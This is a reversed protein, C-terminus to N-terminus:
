EDRWQPSNTGYRPKFTYEAKGTGRNYTQSWPMNHTHHRWMWTWHDAYQKYLAADYARFIIEDGWAGSTQYNSSGTVVMKRNRKGAYNGRVLLLKEHTYLDLQQDVPDYLPTDFGTSRVPIVGRKTPVALVRAVDGGIYGINLMVNCGQAYLERFRQAIVKGRVGDWAHMTVRLMTRGDSTAAGLCTVPRLLRIIPDRDVTWRTKKTALRRPFPLVELEYKNNAFQQIRHSNKLTKDRRMENFINSLYDHIKTKGNLTLLDNFQNEFGNMKMNVSGLMVVDKAAGTREFLIFKSHQIDLDGRCASRCQFWFSKKQVTRVVKQKRKQGPVAKYSVVKKTRKGLAARLKKQAPPIEHEHTIVQVYVGRKKARILADAVPFRDFSFMAMKLYTGPKANNIAGVVQREITYMRADYTRPQNFTAGQRPRYAKKKKAKKRALPATAATAVLPASQATSGLAGAVAGQATAVPASLLTFALAVVLMVSLRSRRRPVAAELDRATTQDM